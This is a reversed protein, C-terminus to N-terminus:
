AAHRRLPERARGRRGELQSQLSGLFYNAHPTLKGRKRLTRRADDLGAKGVCVLQFADLLSEIALKSVGRDALSRVEIAKPRPPAGAVRVYPPVDQQINLQAAVRACSGVTVLDGVVTGAEISAHDEVHADRGLQVHSGLRAGVGLRSDAGIRSLPQIRCEDGVVTVGDGRTGRQVVSNEHFRCGDGILVEGPTTESVDDAVGGIVVGSSFTNGVGAIVGGLLSVHSVLVNGPGLSVRPGVVCFPGVVVDEALRAQPDVSALPSVPM